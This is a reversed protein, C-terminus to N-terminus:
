FLVDFLLISLGLSAFTCNYARIYLIFQKSKPHTCLLLSRIPEPPESTEALRVRGRACCMTFVPDQKSSSSIREEFWFYASCFNCKFTMEGVMFRATKSFFPLKPLYNV